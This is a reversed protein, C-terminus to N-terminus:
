TNRVVKIFEKMLRLDKKGPRKEIGSSVDVAYPRVKKIAQAVNGPNLGGSLIVPSVLTKARKALNWDFIKGTGGAAGEIYTDLLYGDVDYNLLLDLIKKDKIRFAKVVKHTRKFYSCYGNSEEGHFQLTDIKCTKITKEVVKRNANVFLGTFNVFPPLKEIIREAEQISVHRPSKAFVFGIADAGLQIAALADELNTIGCVKVRVV